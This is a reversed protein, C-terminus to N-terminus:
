RANLMNIAASIVDLHHIQFVSDYNKSIHKHIWNIQHDGETLPIKEALLRALQNQRAELKQQEDFESQLMTIETGTVNGLYEDYNLGIWMYNILDTMSDTHEPCQALRSIKMLGMMIATDADTLKEIGDAVFRKDLYSNWLKTIIPFNNGYTTKRDIIIDKDVMDSM